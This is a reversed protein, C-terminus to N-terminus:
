SKRDRYTSAISELSQAIRTFAEVFRWALWITFAFLGLYVVVLLGAAVPM